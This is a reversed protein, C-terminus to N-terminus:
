QALFEQLRLFLHKIAVADEEPYVLADEGTQEFIERLLLYSWTYNRFSYHQPQGALWSQFRSLVDDGRGAGFGEVFRCVLAYRPRGTYMGSRPGVAKIMADWSDLM